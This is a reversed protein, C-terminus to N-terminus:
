CTQRNVTGIGPQILLQYCTNLRNHHLTVIVQTTILVPGTGTNGYVVLNATPIDYVLDITTYPTGGASVGQVITDVVMTRASKKERTTDGDYQHNALTTVPNKVGDAFLTYTTPTNTALRVGYGSPTTDDAQTPIAHYVVGAQADSQAGQIDAAIVAGAQALSGRNKEKSINFFVIITLIAFVGMSILIEILTFGRRRELANRRM